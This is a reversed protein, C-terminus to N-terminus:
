DISPTEPPMIEFVNLTMSVLTYYGLLGVLEVMGREGIHNIGSEYLPRPVHGFELISGVIDYIVCAKEEAFNPRRRAAIAEIVESELGEKEAELKHVHWEHHSTWKRAVLLIAMETLHPPTCTDYRLYEVLKQTRRAYEPSKLWATMPAPLRGRKGKITENCVQQAQETMHSLPPLAIRSM